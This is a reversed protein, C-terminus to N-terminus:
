RMVRNFAAAQAAAKAQRGRVVANLAERAARTLEQFRRVDEKSQFLLQDGGAYSVRPDIRVLHRHLELMVEALRVEGPVPHVPKPPVIDRIESAPLGSERALAAIREETWAAATKEIETVAALRAQLHKGVQPHARANAQYQGTEWAAIMKERELGHRKMVERRWVTGDVTMKSVVWIRKARPSTPVPRNVSEPLRANRTTDREWADLDILHEMERAVEAKETAARASNAYLRHFFTGVVACVAVLIAWDVATRWWPRPPPPPPRPPLPRHVAVPLAPMGAGCKPCAVSGEPLDAGCERCATLSM